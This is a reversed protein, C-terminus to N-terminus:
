PAAGVFIKKVCPKKSKKKNDVKANTQDNNAGGNNMNIQSQVATGEFKNSFKKVDVSPQPYWYPGRRKKGGRGKNCPRPGPGGHGGHGRGRGRGRGKVKANTQNNNVGGNNMNIQSKIAAGVFENSFKKVDVSPQPAWYPNIRRGRRPGKKCPRPGPRGRGKGRGKGRGRGKGGKVKANTQNNNVGGNNMNIQSKLALGQFQNKFKKVSVGRRRGYGWGPRPWGYGPRRCSHFVPIDIGVPFSTPYVSPTAHHQPRAYVRPVPVGYSNEFCNVKHRRRAGGALTFSTMALLMLFTKM